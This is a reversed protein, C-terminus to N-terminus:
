KVSPTHMVFVNDELRRVICDQASSIWIATAPENQPWHWEHVLKATPLYYAQFCFVDSLPPVVVNCDSQKERLVAEVM